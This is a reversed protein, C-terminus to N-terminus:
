PSFQRFPEYSLHPNDVNSCTGGIYLLIILVIVLIFSTSLDLSGEFSSYHLYMLVGLISIASTTSMLNFYFRVIIRPIGCYYRHQHEGEVALVTSGQFYDRFLQFSDIINIISVALIILDIPILPLLTYGLSTIGAHNPKDFYLAVLLWSFCIYFTLSMELRGESTIGVMSGFTIVTFPLIAVYTYKFSPSDSSFKYILQVLSCVLSAEFLLIILYKRSSPFLQYPKLINLNDVSRVCSFTSVFFRLVQQFLYVILEFLIIVFALIENWKLSTPYNPLTSILWTSLLLLGVFIYSLNYKEQMQSYEKELCYFFRLFSYYSLFRDWARHCLRYKQLFKSSVEYAQARLQINNEHSSSFREIKIIYKDIMKPLSQIEDSLKIHISIPLTTSTILHMRECYARPAPITLACSLWVPSFDGVEKWEKCITRFKLIETYDSQYSLILHLIETPLRM